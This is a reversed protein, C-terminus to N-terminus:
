YNLIIGRCRPFRSCGWFEKGTHPGKKSVRKVMKATCKPCSPTEEYDKQVVEDTRKKDSPVGAPAKKVNTYAITKEKEQVIKKVNDVHQFHTRLNQALRIEEITAIIEQVQSATLVTEKHSKIFNVCSRVHGVNPPMDTKFQAEGTFIVVPFISAAPLNLLKRLTSTHKYNQHLPNQFTKKSRYIQQTWTAEKESGFIWGKYHKTEVVFIGYPSVIIHDVQTTRGTEDPLTVNHLISYDKDSFSFRFIIKILLEGFWGKVVPLRCITIILALLFVAMLGPNFMGRIFSEFLANFGM